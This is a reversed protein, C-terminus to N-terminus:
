EGEKQAALAALDCARCPKGPVLHVHMLNEMERKYDEISISFNSAKFSKRPTPPVPLNPLDESRLRRDVINAIWRDAIEGWAHRRKIPGFNM